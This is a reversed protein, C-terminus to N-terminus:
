SSISPTISADVGASERAQSRAWHKCVVRPAVDDPHGSCYEVLCDPREVGQLLEADVARYESLLNLQRASLVEKRGVLEHVRVHNQFGKIPVFGLCRFAMHGGCQGRVADGVSVTICLDRNLQELRAALNVTDGIVTYNMRERSGVNGALVPGANIGIRISMGFSHKQVFGANLDELAEVIAVAADCALSAHSEVPEPVNWVAMIADGIYKDIVGRHEDVIDSFRAFMTQLIDLMVAVGKQDTLSTFNVVDLFMVTAEAHAMSGTSPELNNRILWAVVTKPVYVTFTKLAVTMRQAQKELEAVESVPSDFSPARSFNMDTIRGLHATLLGIHKSLAAALAVISGSLLVLVSLTLCIVCLVYTKTSSEVAAHARLLEGEFDDVPSLLALWWIKGTLTDIPIFDIFAGDRRFSAAVRRGQTHSLWMAVTSKVAHRPDPHSGVTLVNKGDTVNGGTTALMGMDTENDFMFALGHETIELTSFFSQLSDLRISTGIYASANPGLVSQPLSMSFCAEFIDTWEQYSTWTNIPLGAELGNKWYIHEGIAFNPKTGLPIRTPTLSDLLFLYASLTSNNRNSDAVTWMFAKKGLTYGICYQHYGWQNRFGFCFGNLAPLQRIFPAMLHFFPAPNDAIAATTRPLDTAGRQTMDGLQVGLSNIPTSLMREVTIRVKDVVLGRFTDAQKRISARAISTLGTVTQGWGVAIPTISILAVAVAGGLFGWILIHRLPLGRRAWAQAGPVKAYPAHSHM